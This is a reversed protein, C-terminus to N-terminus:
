YLYELEQLLVVLAVLDIQERGQDLVALAVITFEELAHLALAVEIGTHIAGDALDSGAHLEVAVLIMADLDHHVAQLYLVLVVLADSATHGIGELLAISLHQDVIHLGVLHAVIAAMEHTGGTADGIVIGCGVVEGEIGGLSGTGATMAQAIDRQGIDVLDDGIARERDTLSCQGGDALGLGGTEDEM